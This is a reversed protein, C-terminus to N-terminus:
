QQQNESKIFGNNNEYIGLPIISINTQNKLVPNRLQLATSMNLWILRNHPATRHQLYGGPAATDWGEHCGDRSM